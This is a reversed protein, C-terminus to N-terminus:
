KTSNQAWYVQRKVTM